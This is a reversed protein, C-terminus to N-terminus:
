IIHELCYAAAYNFDVTGSAEYIDIKGLLDLYENKDLTTDDRYFSGDKYQYFPGPSKMVAPLIDQREHIDVSEIYCPESSDRQWNLILFADLSASSVIKNDVGYVEDFFVDYKEELEWLEDKALTSLEKQRSEPLFSRLRDSNMMTGPNIRPLKPIGQASVGGSMQKLFLRDNTLYNSAAEELLRLMLTSKGGGSFGAIALCKKNNVLAAAHCILAGEQQMFNMYQANIFNILQNDNTLCPGAAILYDKSQLFVMGTRVKRIMRGDELDIYADKRGTKGPERKWDIFELDLEPLERDFALVEINAVDTTNKETLTHAFYHKLKKLLAFSNSRIAIKYNQLQLLVTEDALEYGSSLVKAIEEISNM